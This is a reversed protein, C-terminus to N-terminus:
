RILTNAILCTELESFTPLRWQDSGCLQLRNIEQVYAHTDCEIKYCNGGDRVGSTERSPDYWTFRHEADSLGANNLKTEWLLKTKVDHACSWQLASDPLVNGYYDIKDFKTAVQKNQNGQLLRPKPASAEAPQGSSLQLKEARRKSDQIKAAEPKSTGEGSAPPQPLLDLPKFLSSYDLQADNTNNDSAVNIEAQPSSRPALAYKLLFTVGALLLLVAVLVVIYRDRIM